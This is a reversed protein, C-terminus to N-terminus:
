FGAFSLFGKVYNPPRLSLQQSPGFITCRSTFLKVHSCDPLAGSQVMGNRKTLMAGKGAFFNKDQKFFFIQTFNVSLSPSGKVKFLM